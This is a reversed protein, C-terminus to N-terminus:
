RAKFDGPTEKEMKYVQLLKTYGYLLFKGWGTAKKDINCGRASNRM